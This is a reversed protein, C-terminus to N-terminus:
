AEAFGEAHNRACLAFYMFCDEFNYGYRLITLCTWFLLFFEFSYTCACIRAGFFVDSVYSLVACILFSVKFLFLVVFVFFTSSVSFFLLCSLLCFFLAYSCFFFLVPFCWFMSCFVHPLCLVYIVLVFVLVLFDFDM